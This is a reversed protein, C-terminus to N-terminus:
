EDEEDDESDSLCSVIKTKKAPPPVPSDNGYRKRNRALRKQEEQTACEIGHKLQIKNLIAKEYKHKEKKGM